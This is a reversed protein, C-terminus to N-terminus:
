YKKAAKQSAKQSSKMIKMQSIEPFFVVFFSLLQCRQWPATHCSSSANPRAERSAASALKVASALPAHVGSSLGGVNPPCVREDLATKAARYLPLAVTGNFLCVTWVARKPTTPSSSSSRVVMVVLLVGVM